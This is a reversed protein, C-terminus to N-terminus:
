DVGVDHANSWERQVHRIRRSDMGLWAFGAGTALLAVVAAGIGVGVAREAFSALCVVFAVVGAALLFLGPTKAGNKMSEGARPRTTRHHDIADRSTDGMGSM